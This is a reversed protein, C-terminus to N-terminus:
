EEVALLVAARQVDGPLKDHHVKSGSHAEFDTTLSFGAVIVCVQLLGLLFSLKAKAAKSDTPDDITASNSPHRDRGLSAFLLPPMKREIPSPAVCDKPSSSSPHGSPARQSAISLYSGIISVAKSSMAQRSSWGTTSEPRCDLRARKESGILEALNQEVAKLAMGLPFIQDKSMDLARLLTWFPYLKGHSGRTAFTNLGDLFANCLYCTKKSIGLYPFPQSPLSAATLFFVMQMEAHVVLNQGKVESRVAEIRKPEQIWAPPTVNYEKLTGAAALRASDIGLDAKSQVGDSFVPVITIKRFSPLTKICKMLSLHVARIRALFRLQSLIREGERAQCFAKLAAEWESARSLTFARRSIEKAREVTYGKKAVANCSRRLSQCEAILEKRKSSMNFSKVSRKALADTFEVFNNMHYLLRQRYYRLLLDFLKNIKARGCGQLVDAMIQPLFM